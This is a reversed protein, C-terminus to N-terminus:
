TLLLTNLAIDHAEKPLTDEYLQEKFGVGVLFPFLSIEQLHGLFQDYFGKGRGLRFFSKDFALAPIVMVQIEKEEVPKCLTPDPELIGYGNKRLTKFSSVRYAKLKGEELAFLALRKEELLHSNISELSIEEEKSVFSIVLSYNELVKILPKHLLSAAEQKRFSPLKKLLAQFHSRLRKKENRLCLDEVTM